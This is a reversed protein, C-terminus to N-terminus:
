PSTLRMGMRGAARKYLKKYEEASRLWSHDERMIRSRVKDVVARDRYFKAAKGIVGTLAKATYDKFTFGNGRKGAGDLNKITDKLGGTARVIPITGFRLSYMQNLGCPEYRSPMLFFDSGAEILHALENNFELRVGLRGAYKGALATYLEHYKQQGTGLIAIRVDLKMLAPIAEALIDFGKQDVLRSVMGVVPSQAGQKLGFAKHLEARCREKGVLDDPTFNAPILEDTEPNWENPDIGNLIGVLDKKRSHLVGELGYGFEETTTIEEAYTKSVTSICGAFALGIKMVNVKGWFEFPGMPVFLGKDLGATDLFAPEFIGQYALNHVSFVTGTGTFRPNNREELSLYAPILGAHFDNCHVVDPHLDLAKIIEVAARNFFVTREAEDEFAEGTEATYIGKRGYFRENDIFYVDLGTGPKKATRVEFPVRGKGVPVSFKSLGQVAGIRFRKRDISSYLPTIVTIDCGIRELEGPLAGMVDALGGVKSFPVIETTVIVVNVTERKAKM